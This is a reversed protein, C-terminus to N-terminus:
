KPPKTRLRNEIKFRYIFRNGALDNRIIKQANQERVTKSVFRYDFRSKEVFRKPPDELLETRSDNEIEVRYGFRIGRPCKL